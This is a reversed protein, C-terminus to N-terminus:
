GASIRITAQNNIERPLWEIAAGAARLAAVLAGRNGGLLEEKIPKLTSDREDEVPYSSHSFYVVHTISAKRSGRLEAQMQRIFVCAAQQNSVSAQSPWEQCATLFDLTAKAGATADGETKAKLRVLDGELEALRKLTLESLRQTAIALARDLTKRLTM